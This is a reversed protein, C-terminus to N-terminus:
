FYIEELFGLTHDIANKAEKETAQNGKHLIKNALTRVKNANWATEDSILQRKKATTVIENLDGLLNYKAKLVTEIVTRCMAVTASYQGFVFCWRSEHYINKIKEPIRTGVKVYPPILKFYNKAFGGRDMLENDEHFELIREYYDQWLETINLSGYGFFKRLVDPMEKDYPTERIRIRDLQIIFDMYEDSLEEHRKKLRKKEDVSLVEELKDEVVKLEGLLKIFQEDETASKM